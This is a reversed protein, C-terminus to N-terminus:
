VGRIRTVDFLTLLLRWFRQIKLRSGKKTESKDDSKPDLRRHLRDGRVWHTWFDRATLWHPQIHGHEATPSSVLHRGWLGKGQCKSTNWDVQKRDFCKQGDDLTDLLVHYQNLPALWIPDTWVRRMKTGNIEGETKRFVVLTRFRSPWRRWIPWPKVFDAPTSETINIDM